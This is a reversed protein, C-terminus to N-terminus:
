ARAAATQRPAADLERVARAAQAALSRLADPRLSFATLQSRSEATIIYRAGSDSKRITVESADFHLRAV